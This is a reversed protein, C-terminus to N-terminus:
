RLSSQLPHSFGAMVESLADFWDSEFPPNTFSDRWFLGTPGRRFLSRPRFFSTQKLWHTPPPPRDIWELGPGYFFVADWFAREERPRERFGALQQRLWHDPPLSRDAEDYANPFVQEAYALGCLRNEDYFQRARSDHFITSARAATEFSDGGVM